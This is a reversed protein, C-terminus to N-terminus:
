FENRKKVFYGKRSYGFEGIYNSDKKFGLYKLAKGVQNKSLRYNSHEKNIHITIDTSTMFDGGDEKTSANFYKSILEYELSIEQHRENIKENEEIENRTLEFKFGELYLETAQRYVHDINIKVSYSFDIKKTLEFCLWRVSGTEDTLFEDKNTSGVFNARRWMTTARKAFPLRLNVKDKSIVSKLSNLETKSLTSLEDMNIIFSTALTILSDKDTGINEALYDSLAPPVLWRCFSSKGSGQEEHVLIFVQKNFVKEETSCAVCRVFMKRLHNVFRKPDKTPIFEALNGIYDVKPDYDSKDDLILSFFYDKFPDFLPVFDSGLLAGLKDRSFGINEKQMERYITNENLDIFDMENKKKYEYKQSVINLRFDFKETLYIEAREWNNLGRNLNANEGTTHYNGNFASSIASEIEQADFDNAVFNSLMLDCVMEQQLGKRYCLVALNFVYDNRSGETFTFKKNNVRVLSYFEMKTKDWVIADKNVFIKPDSCLYTLRPLDKGSPDIKLQMVNEYYADMQNFVMHHEKPANNTRILIKIGTGSPSIFAAFTYQNDCIKQFQQIIDSVDDLDLCIFNSYTNLYETKRQKDFLGSFTVAQLQGKLEEKKKPNSEFRLVNTKIELDPDSKILDIVQLIDIAKSHKYIKNEFISVMVPAIKELKEM